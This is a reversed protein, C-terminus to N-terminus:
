GWSGFSGGGRSGGGFIDSATGLMDFISDSGGQLSGGAADSAEQLAPMDFGGGGGDGGSGASPRGQASGGASPCVWVGGGPGSRRGARRGNGGRGPHGIIVPGFWDPMPTDDPSFKSIWSEELGFATAYHLFRDFIEKAEDLNEH